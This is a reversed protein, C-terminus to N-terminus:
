HLGLPNVVAESVEDGGQIEEITRGKGDEVLPCRRLLYIANQAVRCKCKNGGGKRHDV